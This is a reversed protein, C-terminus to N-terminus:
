STHRTRMARRIWDSTKRHANPDALPQVAEVTFHHAPQEHPEGPEKWSRVIAKVTTGEEM